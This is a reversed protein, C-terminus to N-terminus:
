NHDYNTSAIIVLEAELDPCFSIKAELHFLPLLLLLHHLGPLSLNQIGVDDDDDEDEGADDDHDDHAHCLHDLKTPKLAHHKSAEEVDPAGHEKEPSM